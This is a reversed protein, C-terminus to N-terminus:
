LRSVAHSKSVKPPGLPPQSGLARLSLGCARLRRFLTARSIGLAVAIPRAEGGYAQSVALLDARARGRPVVRESAHQDSAALPVTGAAIAEALASPGVTGNASLFGAREIAGVAGPRQGAM